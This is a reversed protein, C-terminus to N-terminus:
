PNVPNWDYMYEGTFEVGYKIEKIVKFFATRM